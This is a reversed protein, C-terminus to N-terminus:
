VKPLFKFEIWVLLYVDRSGCEMRSLDKSSRLICKSITRNASRHNQFCTFYTTYKRIYLIHWIHSIYLTIHTLIILENLIKCTSILFLYQDITSHNVLQKTLLELPIIITTTYNDLKSYHQKIYYICIYM